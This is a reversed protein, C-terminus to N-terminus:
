GLNKTVLFDLIDSKWEGAALVVHAQIQWGGVPTLDTSVSTVQIKGDTGDTTFSSAKTLLSKDPRFFFVEQTTAGSVDVISTSDMLTIEFVTGIDGEHIENAAM